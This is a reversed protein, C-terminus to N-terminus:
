ALQLSSAPPSCCASKWGRVAADKASRCYGRRTLRRRGSRPDDRYPPMRRRTVRNRDGRAARGSGAAQRERHDVDLSPPIEVAFDPIQTEIPTQTYTAVGVPVDDIRVVIRPWNRLRNLRDGTNRGPFLRRIDADTLGALKRVKSACIWHRRARAGAMRWQTSQETM